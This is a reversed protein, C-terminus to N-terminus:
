SAVHNKVCYRKVPRLIQTCTVVYTEVPYLVSRRTSTEVINLEVHRLVSTHTLVYQEVPRLVSRRAASVSWRNAEITLTLFVINLLVILIRFLVM